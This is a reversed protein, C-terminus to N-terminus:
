FCAASPPSQLPSYRQGLACVVLCTSAPPHLRMNLLGMHQRADPLATASSCSGAGYQTAQGGVYCADPQTGIRQASRSHSGVRSADADCTLLLASWDAMHTPFSLHGCVVQLPQMVRPAEAAGSLLCGASREVCVAQRSVQAPSPGPPLGSLSSPGGRPPRGGRPGGAYGGIPMAAACCDAACTLLRRPPVGALSLRMCSM